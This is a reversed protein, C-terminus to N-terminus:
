SAWTWRRARPPWRWSSGNGHEGEEERAHRFLQVRRVTLLQTTVLMRVKRWTDGYPAFGINSSGYLIVDAAVSNPRSAFVHDHTHLLGKAVRPSSVVLVPMAGLRLLMLDFGHKTSILSRLSVHLLSGILHLHGLLPLGPPSPPLRHDDLEKRKGFQLANYSYRIVLLLFLPLLLLFWARPAMLERMLQQALTEM